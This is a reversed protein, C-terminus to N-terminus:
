RDFLGLDRACHGIICPRRRRVRRDRFSLPRVNAAYYHLRRLRLAEVACRAAYPALSHVLQWLGYAFFRRLVPRAGATARRLPDCMGLM